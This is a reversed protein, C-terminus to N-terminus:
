NAVFLGRNGVYCGICYETQLSAGCCDCRWRKATKLNANPKNLTRVVPMGEKAIARVACVHLTYREAIVEHRIGMQALEVIESQTSLSLKRWASDVMAM